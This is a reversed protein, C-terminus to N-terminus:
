RKRDLIAVAEIHPSYLFQDVPTIPGLEYGGDILIRLDRALTAPNCSVAVIRPVKSQALAEAQARAGDRPPDLVVADFVLLERGAIPERLLDRRLVTVPRLGQARRSAQQLADSALRDAEVALVSAREALPFTFTGLGAFLDAVRPADGVGALVLDTLARESERTAQLFAGPPLAVLAKGLRVHPEAQQVMLEGDLTIRALRHSTAIEAVALRARADPARVSGTLDVALGNDARTVTLRLDGKRGLLEDALQRLGPLLAAIEPVLVPCEAIDIIRDARAEHYGLLVRGGARGASLVARRRSRPPIPVIPAVAATIGRAGLAAVVQDHKWARYAAEPLHQVACGGCRTFHPCPTVQRDPAAALIAVDTARQGEVRATVTEGPLTFPVFVPGDATDAIGDGQAGLRAIRLEVPERDTM